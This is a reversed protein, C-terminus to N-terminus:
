AVPVKVAVHGVANVRAELGQACLVRVAADGLERSLTESHRAALRWLEAPPLAPLSQECYGDPGRPVIPM